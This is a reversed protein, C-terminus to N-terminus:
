SWRDGTVCAIATDRNKRHSDTSLLLLENQLFAWSKFTVFIAVRLLYILMRDRLPRQKKNKLSFLGNRGYSM